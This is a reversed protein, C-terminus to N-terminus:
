SREREAPRVVVAWEDGPTDFPYSLWGTTGRRYRENAFCM